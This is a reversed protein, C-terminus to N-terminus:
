NSLISYNKGATRIRNSFRCNTPKFNKTRAKRNLFLLDIHKVAQRIVGYNQLKADAFRDVIIELIKLKIAYTQGLHKNLPSWRQEHRFQLDMELVPLLLKLTSSFNSLIAAKAEISFLRNLLQRQRIQNARYYGFLERKIMIADFLNRKIYDSYRQIISLPIKCKPCSKYKIEEGQQLWEEM